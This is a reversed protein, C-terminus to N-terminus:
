ERLSALKIWENQQFVIICLMLLWWRSTAVSAHLVVGDRAAEHNCVVNKCM